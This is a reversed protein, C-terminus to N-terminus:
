LANLVKLVIVIVLLLLHFLLYLTDFLNKTNDEYNIRKGNIDFYRAEMADAVEDARRYSLIFMPIIAAQLIEMKTKLNSHQYDMGRSALSKFIKNMQEYVTPIFMLAVTLIYAIENTPLLRKLPKFLNQFATILDTTKTTYTIIATYLIIAMVKVLITIVTMIPVQFLLDIILYAIMFYRLSWLCKLYYKIQVNSMFMLALLFIILYILMIFNNNISIAIIYIILSILKITPNLKHLKSDTPYLRFSINNFM